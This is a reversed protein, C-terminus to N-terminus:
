CSISASLTTTSAELERSVNSSIITSTNAEYVEGDDNSSISEIDAFLQLGLVNLREQASLLHTSATSGDPATSISQLIDGATM